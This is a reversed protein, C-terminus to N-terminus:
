LNARCNSELCHKLNQSSISSGRQTKRKKKQGTSQAVRLFMKMQVSLSFLCSRAASLAVQCLLGERGALTARTRSKHICIVAREMKGLMSDSFCKFADGGKVEEVSVCACVYFVSVSCSLAMELLHLANINGKEKKEVACPSWHFPSVVWGKVQDM